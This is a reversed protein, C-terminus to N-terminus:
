RDRNARWTPTDLIFGAGRERAIGFYGDYYDFGALMARADDLLVFAAFEPLEIGRNFILDTELGGDTVFLGGGSLQPLTMDGCEWLHWLPACDLYAALHNAQALQQLERVQDVRTPLRAIHELELLPEHVPLAFRAPAPLQM